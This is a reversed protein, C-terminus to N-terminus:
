VKFQSVEKALNDISQKNTQTIADVEQVVNNIEMAGRAMENMSDTIVHTLSDLQKIEEAINEGGRLMEGAGDSVQATVANIHQMATLVEESGHEQEQMAEMLRVSMSKVQESLTFIANFKDEATKSASSLTEIEGSLTKLTATITKGQVSSEEALKRIEDAVVAFGKGAEGAHAAEIAANMALLNTQSAIHQIVSSAELLGGSEEAIQKAISNSTAITSKGAETASALNKIAEDTKELTDTISSINAVMQEIASSSKAVSVAQNEISGNLQKITKIIQEVTASTEAVRSGQTLTQGKIGDINTSMRHVTGTTEKMNNALNQGIGQMKGLNNGISEIVSRIKEMTQNFYRSLDSIEGSGKEPLRATLDGAGESIDKLVLATHKIPKINVSLITFIIVSFVVFFVISIFFLRFIVHEASKFLDVTSRMSVIFWKTGPIKMSCFFIKRGNIRLKGKNVDASVIMKGLEAYSKHEVEFIIDDLKYTDHVLFKGDETIVFLTAEDNKDHTIVTNIRTTDMNTALVGLLQEDVKFPVGLSVMPKGTNADVYVDTIYLGNNARAGKYWDRTRPDYEPSAIWASDLHKRNNFGAYLTSLEDYNKDYYKLTEVFREDDLQNFAFGSAIAKLLIERKELLSTVVSAYKKNQSLFDLETQRWVRGSLSHVVFVMSIVIGLLIVLSMIGWIQGILSLKKLKQFFVCKKNHM